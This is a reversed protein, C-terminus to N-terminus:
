CDDITGRGDNYWDGPVVPERRLGGAQNPRQVCETATCNLWFTFLHYRAVEDYTVLFDEAALGNKGARSHRDLGHDVIELAAMRQVLEQIIKRRNSALLRALCSSPQGALREVM